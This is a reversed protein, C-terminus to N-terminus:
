GEPLQLLLRVDGARDPVPVDPSEWEIKGFLGQYAAQLPFILSQVLKTVVRRDAKLARARLRTIAPPESPEWDYGKITFGAAKVRGFLESPEYRRVHGCAMDLPSWKSAHVPVSMVFLGGPQLVRAIESLLGEDDEVHELVEFAMVLGFYADPFDLRGGAEAVRGGRAALQELAHASSDVFHSGAVPATPRLGPGIELVKAGDM